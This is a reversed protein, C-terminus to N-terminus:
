PNLLRYIYGWTEICAQVTSVFSFELYLNFISLRYHVVYGLNVSAWRPGKSACDACFRNDENKTIAELEVPLGSKSTGSKFM